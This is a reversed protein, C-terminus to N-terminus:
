EDAEPVGLELEHNLSWPSSLYGPAPPLTDDPTDEPVVEADVVEGRTCSVGGAPQSVESDGMNITISFRSGVAQMAVQPELGALKATASLGALLGSMPTDDEALRGNIKQLFKDATMAARFKFSIGTAELEAKKLNVARKFAADTRLLVVQEGTIGYNAAISELTDSGIAAYYILEPHVDIVNM